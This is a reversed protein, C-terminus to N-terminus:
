LIRSSKSFRKNKYICNRFQLLHTLPNRPGHYYLDGLLILAKSMEPKKNVLTTLMQISEQKKGLENLLEAIKYYSEYDQKNIDITKVYEDIAKRRGGELVYIEALMKHGTYSNPFKTLLKILVKKTKNKSFIKLIKAIFIYIYELLNKNKKELVIILIPLVIAILYTICKIWVPFTASLLIEIFEITIGIFELILFLIYSTDNKAVIKFFIIIFLSVALLNFVIKEILM